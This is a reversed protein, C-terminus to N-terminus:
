QCLLSIEKGDRPDIAIDRVSYNGPIRFGYFDGDGFQVLRKEDVGLIEAAIKKCEEVTKM